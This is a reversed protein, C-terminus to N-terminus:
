LRSKRSEGCRRALETAATDSAEGDVGSVVGDGSKALSEGTCKRVM